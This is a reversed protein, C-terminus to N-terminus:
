ARDSSIVFHLVLQACGETHRDFRVNNLYQALLALARLLCQTGFLNARQVTDVVELKTHDHSKNSNSPQDVM